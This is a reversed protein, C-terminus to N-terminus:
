NNKLSTMFKKNSAKIEAANIEDKMKDHFLIIANILNIHLQWNPHTAQDWAEFITRVPDTLRYERFTVFFSEELKIIIFPTEPVPWSEQLQKEDPKPINSKSDKNPTKSVSGVFLGKLFKWITKM